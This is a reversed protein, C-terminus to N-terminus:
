AMLMALMGAGQMMMQSQNNYLNAMNQGGAMAIDAQTQAGQMYTGALGQGTSHALNASQGSGALGTNVQNWYNRNSIDNVDAMKNYQMTEAASTMGYQNMVSQQNTGFTTLARNFENQFENANTQYTQWQRNFQQDIEKSWFDMAADRMQTNAASSGFNGSAAMQKQVAELVKSEKYKSIENDVDLEFNFEGPGEKDFSFEKEMDPADSFKFDKMEQTAGPATGADEGMERAWRLDSRATRFMEKQADVSYKVGKQTIKSAEVMADAQAEAGKRGSMQDFVGAPDLLTGGEIGLPNSISWNNITLERMRSKFM